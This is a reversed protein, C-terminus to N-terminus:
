TRFDIDTVFFIENKLFAFNECCQLLHSPQFHWFLNGIFGLGSFFEFGADVLEGFGDGGGETGAAAVGHEVLAPAAGGDGLVAHGDGLLDLEAVLHLVHAGLEHLVKVFAGVVRPDFKSGSERIIEGRAEDITFARRYPGLTILARFADIVCLIRAEVPIEERVLRDLEPARGNALLQEGHRDLVAATRDIDECLLRM